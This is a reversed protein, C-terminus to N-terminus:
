PKLITALSTRLDTFQTQLGSIVTKTSANPTTGDTNVWFFLGSCLREMQHLTEDLQAYLSTVDNRISIKHDDMGVVASGQSLETDTTSIGSLKNSLNRFGVIVLGDSLDHTRPSNPVTTAGATFWNDIDRDNFLVLCTDGKVIPFTVRGKGGGLVLVPCQSLIPYTITGDPTQRLVSIQVDAIQKTADYTEIRGVGHCNLNVLLRQEFDDLLDQLAPPVPNAIFSTM